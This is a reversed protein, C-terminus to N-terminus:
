DRYRNSEFMQPAEIYIGTACVAIMGDPLRIEGSAYIKRGIRQTFRAELKVSQGLPLPQKFNMELKVVAVNFGARWLAVGMGEDLIAASAGGHAYGPPGQQNLDLIFESFIINRDDSYWTVGIGKPNSSGCVFCIGHDQIKKM